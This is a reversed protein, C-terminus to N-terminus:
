AAAQRLHHQLLILRDNGWFVEDDVVFTPVGFAGAAVADAINRQHLAMTEADDILAVLRRGDLGAEHALRAIDGDGIAKAGLGFAFAFLARSCAAVDGVRAAAVAALNVRRWDIAPWEPERYPIGYFAAWRAADESRYEPLYQVSVAKDQFPTLGRARMLVESLLPRWRVVVNGLAELQAVQSQALYCYRSGIAYYFDVIRAM